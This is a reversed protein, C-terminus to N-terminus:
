YNKKDYYDLNPKESRTFTRDWLSSKDFFARIADEVGGKSILGKKEAAYWFKQREYFEEAMKKSIKKGCGPRPTSNILLKIPIRKDGYHETISLLYILGTIDETKEHLREIEPGLSEDFYLDLGRANLHIGQKKRLLEENAM